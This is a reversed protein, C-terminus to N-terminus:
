RGQGTLNLLLPTTLRAPDNSPITLSARRVGKAGPRFSLSLVCPVGGTGQSVIVPCTGSLSFDSAHVGDIVPVGVILDSLGTNRVSINKTLPTGGVPAAGFRFAGPSVSMRPPLANGSLPVTLGAQRKPDNSLIRMAASKKGYSIATLGVNMICEGAAPVRACDTHSFDIYDRGFLTIGDISLEGTGINRVRLSKRSENGAKIPGFSLNAPTVVMRAPLQFSASVVKDGTLTVSCVAGDTTDCGNWGNFVVRASGAAIATVISGEPYRGAGGATKWAPGSLAVKGGGAGEGVKNVTLLHMPQTAYAITYSGFAVNNTLESYAIRFFGAEGWEAGWSNKAIFCQERDDYGIILPAHLGAFAGTTYSYVGSVYAFFDNFVKMSTVVPGYAILAAKLADVSPETSVVYAWGTIKVTGDRWDSQASSCAGDTGTYPYCTEPPLGTSALFDSTRDMYGGSCNGVLPGGCSVLIQEALNLDTGPTGRVRLHAAELAATAGFAWCSGCAGQDRPPTVFNGGENRWDFHAPLSAAEAARAWAASAETQEETVVPPLMGLRSRREEEAMGMLPTEGATWSARKAGIATKIDGVEDGHVNQLFLLVMVLVFILSLPKM